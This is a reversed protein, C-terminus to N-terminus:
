NLIYVKVGHRLGYDWAEQVSDFCLDIMMGKVAGGTDAAIAPGYGEVYVRTGLPIVGPDVAVVGRKALLGTATYNSPTGGDGPAYGTATMTLEQRYRYNVGGRSVNGATGYSVIRNVPEQVVREEALERSVAVGNELRERYVTQMKGNEGSQLEQTEGALLEPDERKVTDFPLLRDETVLRETVRVVRVQQNRTVPTDPGPEVRDHEGLLISVETLLDKVTPATTLWELEQGDVQIAVQMAQRIQIELDNTLPATVAPTIEDKPGLEVGAAALAGAVTRERTVVTRMGGTLGYLRVAYKPQFARVVSPGFFTGALLVALACCLVKWRIPFEGRLPFSPGHRNPM